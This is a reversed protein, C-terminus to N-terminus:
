FNRMACAQRNGVEAVDKGLDALGLSLDLSRALLHNLGVKTQHSRDRSFVVALTRQVQEVQDLFAIHAEHARDFFVVITAPDLNRSIGDPPDALRNRASNGILRRM